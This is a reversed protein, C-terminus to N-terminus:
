ALAFNGRYDSIWPSPGLSFGHDGIHVAESTLTSCYRVTAALTVADKDRPVRLM